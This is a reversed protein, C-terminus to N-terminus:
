LIVIVWINAAIPVALAPPADKLSLILFYLLIPAPILPEAIDPTSVEVIAPIFLADPKVDLM